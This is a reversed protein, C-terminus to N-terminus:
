TKNYEVKLEIDKEKKLNDLISEFHQQMTKIYKIKRVGGGNRLSASIVKGNKVKVLIELNNVGCHCKYQQTYNYNRNTASLIWKNKNEILKNVKNDLNSSCSFLQFTLLIFAINKM